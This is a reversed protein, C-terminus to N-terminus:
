TTEGKKTLPGDEDEPFTLFLDEHCALCLSGGYKESKLTMKSVHENPCRHKPGPPDLWRGPVGLFKEGGADLEKKQLRALEAGLAEPDNKPAPLRRGYRIRLEKERAEITDRIKKRCVNCLVRKDEQTGKFDFDFETEIVGCKECTFCDVM